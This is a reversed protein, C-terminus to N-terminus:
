TWRVTDLDCDFKNGDNALQFTGGENEITAMLLM